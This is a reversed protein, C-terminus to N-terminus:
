KQKSQQQHLIAKLEQRKYVDLHTYSVAAFARELNVIDTETADKSVFAIEEPTEGRSVEEEEIWDLAADIDVYKMFRLTFKDLLMDKSNREKAHLLIQKSATIVDKMLPVSAMQNAYGAGGPNTDFLCLHGNPMVAFDIAGREKGLIDLLSQTFVIGLTQRKYM